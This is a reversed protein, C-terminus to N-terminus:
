RSRAKLPPTLKHESADCILAVGANLIMLRPSSLPLTGQPFPISLAGFRRIYATGMLFVIFFCIEM